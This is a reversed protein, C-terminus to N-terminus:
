NVTEESWFTRTPNNGFGTPFCFLGVCALPPPTCEDGVCNNPDVAVSADTSPFLFNVGDAISGRFDVYRDTETLNDPDASNDLNNVPAGTLLDVIYLRNTGLAPICGNSLAGAGPTFSTFL